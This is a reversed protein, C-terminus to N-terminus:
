LEMNRNTQNIMDKLIENFKNAELLEEMSQKLRFRWRHRVNSPINIQESHTDDWRLDGDMALLDQLPFITWMAPSELHQNIIQRCIWPEAFHPPEGYNGLVTHFLERTKEMDEEWWGRITSMDHTSTTCVSLYPADNPHAFLQATKKPMRQIELSLIGLQDMVPHVCDPIMGLDEGCVLMDTAKMLAPLRNMAEHYWYDDHRKYFFHIYLHNLKEKTGQDLNIYSQTQHLSIRPVWSKNESYPYEIFLVESILSFLGNKIIIDKETLQEETKGDLFYNNVKQQTNFDDKLQYCENDQYELFLDKVEQTYEKFYKTLFYERIFPKTYRDEDFDLGFNGIESQSFPISPKFYGLIGQDANMPIEWIRFFGLIHDIRYADFYESMKQLRKRWWLFNDNGMQDWNYTPFGWNQGEVAFDDPPAGAQANLNFLGPETWAEVSYPSIGIPIDGKIIIGNTKAYNVAEVLQKHLHYQIYYHVAVDEWADSKQDCLDAILRQDYVKYEEWKSFDATKYKDRLYVFAAYPVLWEKNENFFFIYEPDELFAYKNNDFLQKFFKSKVDLVEVYNVVPFANFEKQKSLYLQKLNPDSFVGMKEINLYIPHLAMVSIAKYPYSDQWNHSAITENVPLIQILKLDVKKAWDVLTMLDSFEGVGFGHDTRLSFVPISLGAGKWNQIPYNFREDNRIFLFDRKKIPVNEIVRNNGAEIIPLSENNESYMGYKYELPFSLKSCDLNLYWYENEHLELFIPKDLTWNGLVNQNGFVFIKHKETIRPILIRLQLISQSKGILSKTSVYKKGFIVKRFASTNLTKEINSYARWTDNVFTNNYILDLTNIIRNEGDEMRYNGSHDQLAYKYEICDTAQDVELIGCWFGDSEYSLVMAQDPNWNGLKDASGVIKILEGWVTNFHIKFSIEM